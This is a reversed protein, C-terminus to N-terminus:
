KKPIIKESHLNILSGLKYQWEKPMINGYGGSHFFTIEGFYIQGDVNYLDVRCHAFPSSLVTAIEIMKDFNKPKELMINADTRYTTQMPIYNYKMDYVNSVRDENFNHEGKEDIINNSHIVYMPKGDFCLFKYDEPLKQQKDRIVKECIIKPKIDKYNWERSLWYHNQKLVYNFRKAFLRKNFKNNKNYIVNYGSTHNCKIIVEEKFAAFNIDNASDYVGLLPILIEGFGNSEIYKRVLYKDSCLTTLPDRNIFKLIWLKENFTQPNTLNLHEGKRKYYTKRAFTYDDMSLKKKYSKWSIKELNFRITQNKVLIGKIKRLM